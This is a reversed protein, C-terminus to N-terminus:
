GETSSRITRDDDHQLREHETHISILSNLVEAKEKMKMRMLAIADDVDSSVRYCHWEVLHGCVEKEWLSAKGQQDVVAVASM